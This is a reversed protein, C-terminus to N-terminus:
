SDGWLQRIYDDAEKQETTRLDTNFFQPNDLKYQRENDELKKGKALKYRISSVTALPCEGVAMFYSLFTWWHMYDVGRIDKGVVSNIASAILNADQEWDIVKINQTNSTMAAEGQNFFAFMQKILEALTENEPMDSISNFDAYFIILASYLRETDSLETDNLASFCDLVMRFDGKERIKFSARETQISTPLSYDPM